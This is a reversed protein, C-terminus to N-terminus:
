QDGISIDWLWLTCNPCIACLFSKYPFIHPFLIFNPDRHQLHVMNSVMVVTSFVSFIHLCFTSKQFVIDGAVTIDSKTCTDCFPCSKQEEM